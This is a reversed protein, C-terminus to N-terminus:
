VLSTGLLIWLVMWFSGVQAVRNVGSGINCTKEGEPECFGLSDTDDLTGVMMKMVEMRGTCDGFPNTYPVITGNKYHNDYSTSNCSGKPCTTTVCEGFAFGTTRTVTLYTHELNICAHGYTNVCRQAKRSNAFFGSGSNQKCEEYNTKHSSADSPTDCLSSTADALFFCVALLLFKHVLMNLRHEHVLKVLFLSLSRRQNGGEVLIIISHTM